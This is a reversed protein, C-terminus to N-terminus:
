TRAHGASVANACSEALVDIECLTTHQQGAVWEAYKSKDDGYSENRVNVVGNRCVTFGFSERRARKEVLTENGDSDNSQM